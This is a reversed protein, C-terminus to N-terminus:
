HSEHNRQSPFLSRPFCLENTTCYAWQDVHLSWDEWRDRVTASRLWWHQKRAAQFKFLHHHQPSLNKIRWWPNTFLQAALYSSTIKDAQPTETYGRSWADDKSSGDVGQKSCNWTGKACGPSYPRADLGLLLRHSATSEQGTTLSQLHATM